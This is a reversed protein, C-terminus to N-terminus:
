RNQPRFTTKPPTKPPTKPTNKFQMLIAPLWGMYLAATYAPVELVGGLFENM